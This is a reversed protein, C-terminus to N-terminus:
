EVTMVEAVDVTWVEPGEDSDAVEVEILRTGGVMSGMGALGDEIAFTIEDDTAVSEIKDPSVLKLRVTVTKVM